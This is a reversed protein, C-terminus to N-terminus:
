PVLEVSGQDSPVLEVWTNGEALRIVVGSDDVLRIPSTAADKAWTGHITKGGSSVWAEGSGLMVTKPVEGYSWDIGVRMVVVNTAALQVGDSDQDPSGEQSRLYLQGAADWSWSPWREDSFRTNIASVGTGDVVASAAAPTAAYAFQQAPPALDANRAVLEIAKVVVDHPSEYGDVRYFIDTDDYDFVANVVPTAMMMEVFQEQGGSYAVIGGFPTIIDPDMPRISRVPGLLEPVDSQWIAVYRTIGGEVLEEFVIDARGLGIQPRAGDHNDVKASLAPGVVSGPAVSTGRLPSLVQPEPAVYDSVWAAETPTPTPTPSPPSSCGALGAALASGAVVAGVIVSAASRAARPMRRSTHSTM